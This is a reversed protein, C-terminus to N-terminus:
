QSFFCLGALAMPIALAAIFGGRLSGLLVLLVVLVLVAGHLLNDKVTDITRDILEGRDYFPQIAVNAPLGRSIAALKEKIREVLEKSNEGKRMIVVGIVTEGQGASTVISQQLRKGVVVRGLDRVRLASQPGRRVEM